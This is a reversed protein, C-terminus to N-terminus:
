ERSFQKEKAQPLFDDEGPVGYEYPGRSVEPSATSPASWELTTCQWPNEEAARGKFMSWFFNVLFVAQGAM